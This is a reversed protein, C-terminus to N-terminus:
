LKPRNTNKSKSMVSTMFKALKPPFDEHLWTDVLAKAERTITQEISKNDRAANILEKCNVLTRLDTSLLKPIAPIKDLDPWHESSLGEIIGNIYGCHMAEQAKIPRDLLLLENARRFGFQKVFTYTSAGEPSQYSRM